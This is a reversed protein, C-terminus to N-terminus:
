KVATREKKEECNIPLRRHTSKKKFINRFLIFTSILIYYIFIESFFTRLFPFFKCKISMRERFCPPMRGNWECFNEIATKKEKQLNKMKSMFEKIGTNWLIRYECQLRRQQCKKLNPNDIGVEQRIRKEFTEAEQNILMMQEYQYNSALAEIDEFNHKPHKTFEQTLENFHRYEHKFQESINDSAPTKTCINCKCNFIKLHSPFQKRECERCNCRLNLIRSCEQCKCSITKKCKTHDRPLNTCKFRSIEKKAARIKYEKQSVEECLLNNPVAAKRLKRIFVRHQCTNCNPQLCRCREEFCEICHCIGNEEDEESETWVDDQDLM